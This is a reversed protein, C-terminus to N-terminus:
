SKCGGLELSQLIGLVAKFGLGFQSIFTLSFLIVDSCIAGLIFFVSIPLSLLLHDSCDIFLSYLIIYINVLLKEM